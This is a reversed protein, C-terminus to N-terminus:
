NGAVMNSNLTTTRSLNAPNRADIFPINKVISLNILQSFSRM